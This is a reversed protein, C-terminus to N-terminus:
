LWTIEVTFYSLVPWRQPRPVDVVDAIGPTAVAGIEVGDKDTVAARNTNLGPKGDAKRQGGVLGVSLDVTVMAPPLKVRVADAPNRDIRRCGSFIRGFSVVEEACVVFAPDFEGDPAVQRQVGILGM